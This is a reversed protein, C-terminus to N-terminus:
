RQAPARRPRRQLVAPPRLPAPAPRARGPIYLGPRSGGPPPPQGAASRPPETVHKEGGLSVAARDSPARACLWVGGSTKTPARPLEGLLLLLLSSPPLLQLPLAERPVPTKGSGKVFRGWRREGKDGGRRGQRSSRPAPILRDRRDTGLQVPQGTANRMSFGSEGGASIPGFPPQLPRARPRRCCCCCCCCGCRRPRQSQAPIQAAPPPQSPQPTPPPSPPPLVGHLTPVQCGAEGQGLINLKGRSDSSGSPFEPPFARARAGPPAGCPGGVTAEGRRVGAPAVLSADESRGPPPPSQSSIRDPERRPEAAADEKLLGERARPAAHIESNPNRSGGARNAHAPGCRPAEAGWGTTKRRRGRSLPPPPPLLM